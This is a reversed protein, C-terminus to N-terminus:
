LHARQRSSLFRSAEAEWTISSPNFAHMNHRAEFQEKVAEANQIMNPLGQSWSMILEIMTREPVVLVIKESESKLIGLIRLFLM